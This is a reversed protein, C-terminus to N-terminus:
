VDIYGWRADTAVPALGDSFPGAGNFRRPIVERGRADIYGWDKWRAPGRVPARGGRFAGGEDYVPQVAFRGSRDVYGVKGEFEVAALDGGYADARLFRPGILMRGRVDIFGWLGNRKVPAMGGSFNGAGEYAPPVAYKGASDIYGWQGNSQVAALGESFPAAQQFGAGELATRGQVDIFSGGAFAFGESFVGVEPVRYKFPIVVQGAHDIYGWLDGSKVAAVGESFDRADSYIFDIVVRAERAGAKTLGCILPLFAILLFVGWRVFRRQM